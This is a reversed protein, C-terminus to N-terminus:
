EGEEIESETESKSKSGYQLPVGTHKALHAAFSEGQKQSFNHETPKAEYSTYVHKVTQGGGMKPHIEIHDLTKQARETRKGSSEASKIIQEM